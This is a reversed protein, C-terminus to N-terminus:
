QSLSLDPDPNIFPLLNELYSYKTPLGFCRASVQGFYSNASSQLSPAVQPMILVSTPTPQSSTTGGNQSGASSSGQHHGLVTPEPLPIPSHTGTLCCWSQTPATSPPPWSPNAALHSSAGWRTQQPQRSGRMLQEVMSLRAARKRTRRQSCGHPPVTGWSSKSAWSPLTSGSQGERDPPAQFKRVREWFSEKVWIQHQM